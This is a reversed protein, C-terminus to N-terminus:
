SRIDQWWWRRGCELRARKLVVGFRDRRFRGLGLIRAIQKKGHVLQDGPNHPLERRRRQSLTLKSSKVIKEIRATGLTAQNRIPIQHIDIASIQDKQNRQKVKSPDHQPTIPERM